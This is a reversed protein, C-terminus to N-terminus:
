ILTKESIIPGSGPGLEEYKHPFFMYYDNLPVLISGYSCNKNNFFTQNPFTTRLVLHRYLVQNYYFTFFGNFFLDWKTYILSFELWTIQHSCGRYPLCRLYKIGKIIIRHTYLGWIM